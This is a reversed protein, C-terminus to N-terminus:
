PRTACGGEACTRGLRYRRQAIRAYVWRLLRKVGPLRALWGLWRWRRSHLMLYVVADAGSHIRGSPDILQTAEACDEMSLSPFEDIAHPAHYSRAEIRLQDSLRMLRDVQHQCFSCEGDYILTHTGAPHDPMRTTTRM